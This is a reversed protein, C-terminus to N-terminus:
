LSNDLVYIVVQGKIVEKGDVDYCTVKQTLWNREKNIDIIVLEATIVEGVHVPSYFVLDKQLLVCPIGPLKSSIVQTILGETLLAPVIPKPYHKKWAQEDKDYVPSYDRTLEKSVRVDEETFERELRATQGISIDNISPM